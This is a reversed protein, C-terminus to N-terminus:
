PNPLDVYEGPLGIENIIENTKKWKSPDVKSTDVDYILDIFPLVKERQVIQKKYGFAFRDGRMRFEITKNPNEINRYIVTQTKWDGGWTLFAKLGCIALTSFLIVFIGNASKEGFIYVLLVVPLATVAIYLVVFHVLTNNIYLPTYRNLLLLPATIVFLVIAVREILQQNNARKKM